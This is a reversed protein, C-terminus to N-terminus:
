LRSKKIYSFLQPSMTKVIAAVIDHFINKCVYSIYCIRYKFTKNRGLIEACEKFSLQRYKKSIGNEVEYIAIPYNVFLPKYGDSYIDYMMQYDGNIKFKLNFPYVLALDRRVFSSQHCFGKGHIYKKSLWFPSVQTSLKTAIKTKVYATGYIFGIDTSINNEFVHEVVFKDAFSDGSNMFNIWKGTAKQIGKNMGDYVGRDPRSSWYALRNSYKKIIDVTGDKSGGDIIIYEIDPYTQGLVSLITNEIETVTNYCVTIVSIKINNKM